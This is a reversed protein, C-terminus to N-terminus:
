LKSGDGKQENSGTLPHELDEIVNAEDETLQAVVVCDNPDSDEDDEHTPEEADTTEAAEDDIFPNRPPSQEEFEDLNAVDDEMESESYERQNFGPDRPSWAEMMQQTLTIPEDDSLTFFEEPERLVQANQEEEPFIQTVTNVPDNGILEDWTPSTPKEEDEQNGWDPEDIIVQTVHVVRIKYHGHTLTSIGDELIFQKDDFSSLSVKNTRITQLQHKESGIRM